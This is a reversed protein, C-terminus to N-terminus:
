TVPLTARHQAYADAFASAKASSSFMFEENLGAASAFRLRGYELIPIPFNNAFRRDPSGDKNVKAWTQGVPKADAPVREREHFNVDDNELRVETLRVLAFNRQDGFVLLLGPLIYLDSGNANQFHLAPCSPAIVDAPKLDLVVAQRTVARTAKSRERVQDVAVAATTDWCRECAALARFTEVMAGYTTDIGGDLEIELAIRCKEIEDDLAERESRSSEYDAVIEGYKKRLIHKLIYGNEWKRARLETRSLEENAKPIEARLRQSEQYAEALLDRLERLSVSTLQANEASRIEGPRGILNSLEAPPSAEPQPMPRPAPTPTPQPVFRPAPSFLPQSYSLGTGPLGVNLHGGRRGVTVSAGRVGISTSIGSQSFNLRVGPFLRVSRRFRFGM